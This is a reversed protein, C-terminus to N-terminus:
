STFLQVVSAQYVTTAAHAAAAILCLSITRMPAGGPFKPYCLSKPSQRTPKPQMPENPEDHFHINNFIFPAKPENPLNANACELPTQARRPHRLPLHGCIPSPENPVRPTRKPQGPGPHRTALPNADIPTPAAM